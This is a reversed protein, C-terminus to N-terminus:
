LRLEFCPFGATGSAANVPRQEVVMEADLSQQAARMLGPADGAPRQGLRLNRLSMVSAASPFRPPQCAPSCLRRLPITSARPHVLQAIPILEPPRNRGLADRRPDLGSRLAFEAEAQSAPSVIRHDQRELRPSRAIEGTAKGHGILEFVELERDSLLDLGAYDGLKGGDIYQRAFHRSMAESTHFEGALLRRIAVLVTDDMEQKTIYGRAGARLARGAYAAEEHMSLALVPLHPFRQKIDKIMELGDSDKLSLDAIVLDPKADAIAELGARRTGAEACVVLDPETEILTKLGRRLLAHDDM